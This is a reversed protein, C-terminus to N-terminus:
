LLVFDLSRANIGDCTPTPASWAVRVPNTSIEICQITKEGVLTFTPQCRFNISTGYIRADSDRKGNTPLGPDVCYRVTVSMYFAVTGNKCDCNILFM